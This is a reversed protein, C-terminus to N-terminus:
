SNQDGLVEPGTFSQVYEHMYANGNNRWNQDLPILIYDIWTVM